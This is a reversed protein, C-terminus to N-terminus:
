GQEQQIGKSATDTEGLNHRNKENKNGGKEGKKINIIEVNELGFDISLEGKTHFKRGLGLHGKVYPMVKAVVEVEDGISVVNNRIDDYTIWTHDCVTEDDHKVDVLLVRKKWKGFSFKSIKATFIKTENCFQKLGEKM